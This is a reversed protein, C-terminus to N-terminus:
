QIPDTDWKSGSFDGGFGTNTLQEDIRGNTNDPNTVESSAGCFASEVEIRSRFTSPSLYNKRKM